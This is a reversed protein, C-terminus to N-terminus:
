NRSLRRLYTPFSQVHPHERLPDLLGADLGPVYEFNSISRWGPNVPSFLSLQTSVVLDVSDGWMRKKFSGWNCYRCRYNDSTGNVAVYLDAVRGWQNRDCNPCKVMFAVVGQRDRNTWEIPEVIILKSGFHVKM